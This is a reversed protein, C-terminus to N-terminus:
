DVTGITVGLVFARATLDPNALLAYKAGDSFRRALLIGKVGKFQPPLSAQYWGVYAQLQGVAERDALDPKLEIVYLIHSDQGKLLIDARGNIEPIRHQHKHYTLREGVAWDIDALSSLVIKEIESELVKLEEAQYLGLKDFLTVCPHEDGSEQQACLGANVCEQGDHTSICDSTGRRRWQEKAFFHSIVRTEEETLEEGTELKTVMRLCLANEEARECIEDCHEYSPCKYEGAECALHDACFRLLMVEEQLYEM